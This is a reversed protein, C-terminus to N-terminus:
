TDKVQDIWIQFSFVNGQLELNDFNFQLWFDYLYIRRTYFM